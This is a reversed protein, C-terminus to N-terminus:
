AVREFRNNDSLVYVEIAARDLELRGLVSVSPREGLFLGLRMPSSPDNTITSGLQRLSNLAETLAVVRDGRLALKVEGVLSEKERIAIVDVQRRRKTKSDILAADAEVTWGESTLWSAVAHELEAYSRAVSAQSTATQTTSKWSSLASEIESRPAGLNMLKRSGARVFRDVWVRLGSDERLRQKHEGVSLEEDMTLRASALARTLAEVRSAYAGLDGLFMPGLVIGLPEDPAAKAASIIQSFEPALDQREAANALSAATAILGLADVLLRNHDELPHRDGAATLDGSWRSISQLFRRAVHGPDRLVVDTGQPGSGGSTGSSPSVPSDMMRVVIRPQEDRIQEAARRFGDPDISNPERPACLLEVAREGGVLNVADDLKM